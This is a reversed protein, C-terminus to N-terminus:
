AKEKSRNPSRMELVAIYGGFLVWAFFMFDSGAAMHINAAVIAAWFAHNGSTTM